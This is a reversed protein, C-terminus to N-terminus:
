VATGTRHSQSTPQDIYRTEIATDVFRGLAMQVRGQSLYTDTSPGLIADTRQWALKAHLQLWGVPQVYGDTSLLHRWGATTRGPAVALLGLDRNVYQYSLLWGLKDNTAPRVATAAIFAMPEGTTPQPSDSWQIRTLATV